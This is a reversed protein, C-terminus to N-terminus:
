IHILSLEIVAMDCSNLDQYEDVLIYKFSPEIKFDPVQELSKKLQYVLESRLTYGFIERHEEWAGIFKGDLCAKELDDGEITLADWDASLQNFLYEVKDKLKKKDPIITKLHESLDNKIKEYIINKEEWDDAIRLPM